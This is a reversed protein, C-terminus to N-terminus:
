KSWWKALLWDLGLVLLCGGIIASLITIYVVLWSSLDM